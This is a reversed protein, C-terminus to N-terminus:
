CNTATSPATLFSVQSPRATEPSAEGGVENLAAPAVTATRYVSTQPRRDTAAGDSHLDPCIRRGQVCSTALWTRMIFEEPIFVIKPSDFTNLCQWGAVAGIRVSQPALALSRM